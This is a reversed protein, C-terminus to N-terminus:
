ALPRRPGTGALLRGFRAALSPLLRRRSPRLRGIVDGAELELDASFKGALRQMEVNSSLCNIYINDTNRTRAADLIARMLRTGIGRRRWDPEVVLIAEAISPGGIRRLEASGRIVGDEVYAIVVMDISLATDVYDRLFRDSARMAFRNRRSEPDLRLLHAKFVESESATLHKFVGNPAPHPFLGAMTGSQRLRPLVTHQM